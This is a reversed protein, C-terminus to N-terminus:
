AGIVLIKCKHRLFEQTTSGPAFGPDTFPGARTLISDVHQYREPWSIPAAATGNLPSPDVQM